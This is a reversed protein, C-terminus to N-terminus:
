LWHFGKALLVALGLAVALLVALALRLARTNRRRIQLEAKIEAIDRQVHETVAELKAVRAETGSEDAAGKLDTQWRPNTDPFPLHPADIAEQIASLVDETRDRSSQSPDTMALVYRAARYLFM